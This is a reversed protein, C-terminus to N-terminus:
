LDHPKDAAQYAVSPNQAAYSPLNWTPINWLRRAPATKWSPPIFFLCLTGTRGGPSPERVTPPHWYSRRPIARPRDPSPERVTPPHWYSRRPIARPRNPSALVVTPPHSESPRPTGTRGDLSPERVTPPHWYSRRPIARPRDSPALVVTPPHSESPRLTGTRGDLSPERAPSTM